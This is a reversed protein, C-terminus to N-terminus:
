LGWQIRGKHWKWRHQRQVLYLKRFPTNWICPNTKALNKQKPSLSRSIKMMSLLVHSQRGMQGIPRYGQGENNGCGCRSTQWICWMIPISQLSCVHWHMGGWRFNKGSSDAVSIPTTPHHLLSWCCRLYSGRLRPPPPSSTLINNLIKGMHMPFPRLKHKCQYFPFPIGTINCTPILLETNTQIQRTM